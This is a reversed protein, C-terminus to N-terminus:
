FKLSFKGIYIKFNFFSSLKIKILFYPYSPTNIIKKHLLEFM